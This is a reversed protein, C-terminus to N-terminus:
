SLGLTKPESAADSLVLLQVIKSPRWARLYGWKLRPQPGCTAVTIVPCHELFQPSERVCLRLTQCHREGYPGGDDYAGSFKSAELLRPRM